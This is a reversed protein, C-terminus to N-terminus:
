SRGAALAHWRRADVGAVLLWLALATEAVVPLLYATQFAPLWAPAAIALVSGAAYVLAAGAVLGGILRPVLGSRLILVGVALSAIAFFALGLDYGTAHLEAFALALDPRPEAATAFRLALVLALLSASIVAAQVLRFAGAILALVPGAPRLLVFLLVALAVDCIVMALDAVLGARFVAEGAAIAAATAAADGPVVLPGRLVLESTLGLVVIAVYLAGAARALTKPRDTM